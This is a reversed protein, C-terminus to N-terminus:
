TDEEDESYKDKYMNNIMKKVEETAENCEGKLMYEIARQKNQEMNEGAPDGTEEDNFGEENSKEVEGDISRGELPNDTGEENEGEITPDGDKKSGEEAPNDDRGEDPKEENPFDDEKEGSSEVKPDDKGKDSGEDNPDRPKDEPEEDDPKKGDDPPCGKGKWGRGPKFGPKFGWISPYQFGGDEFGWGPVGEGIGWEPGFGSPKSPISGFSPRFGDPNFVGGFSSGFGGAGGFSGSGFSPTLGGPKFGGGPMIGSGDGGFDWKFPNDEKFGWASPFGFSSDDFDGTFPNKFRRKKIGMRETDDSEKERFRWQHLREFREQNAREARPDINGKNLIHNSGICSFFQENKETESLEMVKKCCTETQEIDDATEQSYLEDINVIIFQLFIISAAFKAM